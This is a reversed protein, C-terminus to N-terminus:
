AIRVYGDISASFSQITSGVYDPNTAALQTTIDYTDQPISGSICFALNKSNVGFVGYSYFGSAANVLDKLIFETNWNVFDTTSVMVNSSYVNSDAQIYFKGTVSSYYIRYYNAPNFQVGVNLTTLDITNWTTGNNTWRLKGKGSIVSYSNSNAVYDKGVGLGGNSPIFTTDDSYVSTFTFGDTSKNMSLGGTAGLGFTFFASAVPSYMVQSMTFATAGGTGTRATFAGPINTTVPITVIASATTTTASTIAVILTSSADVSIVAKNPVVTGYVGDARLWQIDNNGTTEKGAVVLTTGTMCADAVRFSAAQTWGATSAWTVLAASTYVVWSAAVNVNSTIYLYNSGNHYFRNFSTASVAASIGSLPNTAVNNVKSIAVFCGAPVRSKFTSYAATYAKAFGTRLYEQNNNTFYNLSGKMPITQGILINDGGLFQSFTSM